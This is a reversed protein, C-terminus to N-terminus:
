FYYRRLALIPTGPTSGGPVGNKIDIFRECYRGGQGIEHLCRDRGALMSNKLKFLDVNPMNALDGSAPAQWRM